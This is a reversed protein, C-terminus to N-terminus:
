VELSGFASNVLSSVGVVCLIRCIVQSMLPNRAAEAHTQSASPGSNPNLNGM